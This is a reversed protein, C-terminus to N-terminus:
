AVSYDIVRYSVPTPTIIQEAYFSRYTSANIKVDDGERSWTIYWINLLEFDEGVVADETHVPGIDYFWDDSDRENPDDPVAIYQGKFLVDITDPTQPISVTTSITKNIESFALTGEINFSGEYINNNKFADYSSHLVLKTLDTM